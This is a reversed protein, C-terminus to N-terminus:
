ENFYMEEKLALRLKKKARSLRESATSVAIGLAKAVEDINMNQYYYLLVTERQKAPLKAIEMNVAFENESFSASPEALQDLSITRGIHKLWAGRQMDRCTNIAIRMLWTTVSSDGRFSPLAKWAKVFTEQVADEALGLDHLNLYCMRLLSTQHMSVLETFIKEMEPDPAKIGQM